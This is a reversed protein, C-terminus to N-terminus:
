PISSTNDCMISTSEENVVGLHKLIGKLWVAQCAESVAAMYEVETSSLTVIPQKKSRWSVAGSGLMFVYGSTSRSDDEDGAHDSDTYGM